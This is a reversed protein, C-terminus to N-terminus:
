PPVGGGELSAGRFLRFTIGDMTTNTHFQFDISRVRFAKSGSKNLVTRFIEVLGRLFPGLTACRIKLSSDLLPM